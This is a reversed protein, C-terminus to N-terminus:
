LLINRTSRDKVYLHPHFEFFINNIAALRHVFLLNRTANPTHLVHNLHLKKSAKKSATPIHSLGIHLISLGSDNAAQVQYKGNYRERMTLRDLDNTLYDTAGTDNYWNAGIAYSPTAAAFNEM